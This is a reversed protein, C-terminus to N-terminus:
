ILGVGDLTLLLNNRAMLRMIAQLKKRVYAQCAVKDKVWINGSTYDVECAMPDVDFAEIELMEKKFLEDFYGNLMDYLTDVEEGFTLLKEDINGATTMSSRTLSIRNIHLQLTFPFQLKDFKSIESDQMVTPQGGENEEAM